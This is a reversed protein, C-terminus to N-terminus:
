FFLEVTNQPCYLRIRRATYGYEAPRHSLSIGQARKVTAQPFRTKKSLQKEVFSGMGTGAGAGELKYGYGTSSIVTAQPATAQSQPTYGSDRICMESGVLSPM